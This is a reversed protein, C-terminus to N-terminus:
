SEFGILVLVILLTRSEQNPLEGPGRIPDDSGRVAPRDSAPGPAHSGRPAAAPAWHLRPSAPKALGPLMSDTARGAPRAGSVGLSVTLM